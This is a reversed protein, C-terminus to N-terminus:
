SRLPKFDASMPTRMLREPSQLGLFQGLFHARAFPYKLVDKCFFHVHKAIWATSIVGVSDSGQLLSPVPACARSTHQCCPWGKTRKFYGSSQLDERM